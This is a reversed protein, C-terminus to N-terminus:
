FFLIFINWGYSEPYHIGTRLHPQNLGLEPASLTYGAETEPFSPPTDPGVQKHPAPASLKVGHGRMGEDELPPVRRVTVPVLRAVTRSGRMRALYPPTSLSFTLRQGERQGERERGTCGLSGQCNSHKSAGPFSAMGPRQTHMHPPLGKARGPGPEM